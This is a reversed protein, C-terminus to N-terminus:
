GVSNEPVYRRNLTAEIAPSACIAWSPRCRFARNSTKLEIRNAYIGQDASAGPREAAIVLNSTAKPGPLIASRSTARFFVMGTPGRYEISNPFVDGDIFPSNTQGGGFRGLEGWAHRLRFTTQGADVGTGFLEFEFITQDPWSEDSHLRQGGNSQGLWAVFFNGDKGFEDKFSPLKTPRVM